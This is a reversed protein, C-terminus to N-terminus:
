YRSFIPTRKKAQGFFRVLSLAGRSFGKEASAEYKEPIAYSM